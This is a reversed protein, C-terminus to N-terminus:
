HVQNLIDIFMMRVGKYELVVYIHNQQGDNPGPNFQDASGNWPVSGSYLIREDQSHDLVLQVLVDPHNVEIL